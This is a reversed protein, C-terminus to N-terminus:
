IGPSIVAMTVIKPTAQGCQVQLEAKIIQAYSAKIRTHQAPIFELHVNAQWMVGGAQQGKMAETEDRCGHTAGVAPAVHQVCM